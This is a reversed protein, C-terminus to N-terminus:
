FECFSCTECPLIRLDLRCADLTDFAYGIVWDLLNGQEDLLDLPLEVRYSQPSSAPRPLTAGHACLATGVQDARM